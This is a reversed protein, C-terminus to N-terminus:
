IEAVPPGHGRAPDPQHGRLHNIQCRLNVALAEGIRLGCGHM